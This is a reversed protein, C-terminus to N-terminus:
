DMESSSAERASERRFHDPPLWLSGGSTDLLFEEQYQDSYSDFAAGDAIPLTALDTKQDIHDTLATQDVQLALIFLRKHREITNIANEVDRKTLPWKITRFWFQRMRNAKKRDDSGGYALKAELAELDYRCDSISSVLEQTALLKQSNPGYAIHALRQLVAHCDKVAKQLDNIDKKANRMTNICGGCIDIIGGAIQIVAIVSSAAGLAEM